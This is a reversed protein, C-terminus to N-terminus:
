ERRHAIYIVIGAVVLAISLALNVCFWIWDTASNVCVPCSSTDAPQAPGNLQAISRILHRLLTLM